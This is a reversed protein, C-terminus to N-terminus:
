LKMLKAIKKFENNLKKNKQKITNYDYKPSKSKISKLYQIEKQLNNIKEDYEEIIENIEEENIEVIEDIKKELQDIKTQYTEETDVEINKIKYYTLAGDLGNGSNSIKNISEFLNSINRGWILIMKNKYMLPKIQSLGSSYMEEVSKTHFGSNRCERRSQEQYVRRQIHGFSLTCCVKLKNNFTLYTYTHRRTSQVYEDEYCIGNQCKM